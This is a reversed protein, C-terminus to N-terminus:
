GTEKLSVKGRDATRCVVIGQLGSAVKLLIVGLRYAFESKVCGKVLKMIKAAM